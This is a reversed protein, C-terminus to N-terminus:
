LFEECLSVWVRSAKHLKDFYGLVENDNVVKRIEKSFKDLLEIYGDVYNRSQIDTNMVINWVRDNLVMGWLESKLDSVYDHKNRRHVALPSGFTVHDGIRHILKLTFLGAWIDDYRNIPIGHIETDMLLCYFPIALEKKFTTNQTNISIYNDYAVAYTVHNNKKLGLSKSPYLINTFADVDPSEYWLGMNLVPKVEASGTIEFTDSFFRPIPYGRPYIRHPHNFELIQLHNVVSNASKVVPACKRELSYEAVFDQSSAFNDDDLTVIIDADIELARLYGFNRRRISNWPIALNVKSIKNPFHNEIWRLQSKVNWYEIKLSSSMPKIYRNIEADPSKMDGVIIFELNSPDVNNAEINLRYSELFEPVNVTTTV